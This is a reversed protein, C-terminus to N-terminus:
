MTMGSGRSLRPVVTVGHDEDIRSFHVSEM